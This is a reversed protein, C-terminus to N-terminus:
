VKKRTLAIFDTVAPKAGASAVMNAIQGRHYTSHNVAHTLIDALMSEYGVGETSKYGIISSLKPGDAGNLAAIFNRWLGDMQRAEIEAQELPWVPFLGDAPFPTLAPAIRHLWVRRAAQIHCFISLARDYPAALSALGLEDVSRRAARLSAIVLDTCRFEYDFLRAFHEPTSM